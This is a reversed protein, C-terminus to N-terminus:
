SLNMLDAMQWEQIWDVQWFREYEIWKPDITMLENMIFVLTWESDFDYMQACMM